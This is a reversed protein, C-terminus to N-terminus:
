SGQNPRSAGAAVGVLRRVEGEVKPWAAILGIMDGPLGPAAANLPAIRDGIVAGIQAPGGTEFTALKM